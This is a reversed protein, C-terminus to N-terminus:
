YKIKYTLFNKLDNLYQDLGFGESVYGEIKEDPGAIYGDITMAVYYVLNRM